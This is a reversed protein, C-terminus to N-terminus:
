FYIRSPKFIYILWLLQASNVPNRKSLLQIEKQLPSWSTIPRGSSGSPTKKPCETSGSWVIYLTPRYFGYYCKWATKKPSWPQDLTDGLEVLIVM